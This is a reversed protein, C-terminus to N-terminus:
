KERTRPREPDELLAALRDLLADATFPKRLVDAAEIDLPHGRGEPHGSVFVPAETGAAARM